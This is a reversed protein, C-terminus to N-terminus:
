KSLADFAAQVQAGTFGCKLNDIIDKKINFTANKWDWQGVVEDKILVVGASYVRDVDKNNITETDPLQKLVKYLKGVNKGKKREAKTKERDVWIKQGDKEFGLKEARSKLFALRADPSHFRIYCKNVRRDKVFIQTDTIEPVSQQVFKKVDTAHSYPKFGGVCAIYSSENAGLPSWSTSRYSSNRQQSAMGDTGLSSEIKESLNRVTSELQTRARREEALEDAFEARLEQKVEQKLNSLKRDFWENQEMFLAEIGAM